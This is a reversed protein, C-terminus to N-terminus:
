FKQPVKFTKHDRNKVKLGIAYRVSTECILFLSYGTNVAKNKVNFAHWKFIVSYNISKQNQIHTLDSRSLKVTINLGRFIHHLLSHLWVSAKAHRLVM